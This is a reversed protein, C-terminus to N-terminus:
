TEKGSTRYEAIAARVSDFAIATLDIAQAPIIEIERVEGGPYFKQNVGSYECLFISDTTLYTVERYVYQNPFSGFYTAKTIGIGLEEKIERYLAAELTEGYNVFGGPLDYLGAKPEKARKIFVIGGATEVIGAVAAACNHFYLFGCEGCKVANESFKLLAASGCRPCYRFGTYAIM